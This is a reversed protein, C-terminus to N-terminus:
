TLLSVAIAPQMIVNFEYDSSPDGLFISPTNTGNTNSVNNIHSERIANEFEYIPVQQNYDVTITPIISFPENLPTNVGKFSWNSIIDDKITDGDADTTDDLTSLGGGGFSALM